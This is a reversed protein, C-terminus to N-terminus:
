VHARGIKAQARELELRERKLELDFEKRKRHMEDKLKIGAERREADINQKVHQLEDQAKAFMVQAIHMRKYAYWLVVIAVVVAAVAIAGVIFEFSNLVVM